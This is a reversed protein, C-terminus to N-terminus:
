LAFSAHRLLPPLSAFSCALEVAGPVIVARGVCPVVDLAPVELAFSVVGAVEVEVRDGVVRASAPVGVSGVGVTGAGLTIPLGTDADVSAQSVTVSVTGSGISLPRVQGHLLGSRSVRLDSLHLVVRSLVLRGARLDGVVATLSPVTGAAAIRALVPFSALTVTAHSGPSDKEIRNAVASQVADTGVVDIVALAALVVALALVFRAARM